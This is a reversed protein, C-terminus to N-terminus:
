EGGDKKHLVCQTEVVTIRTHHDAMEKKLDDRIQYMTGAMATLRTDLMATLGDLKTHVRSGIWGLVVVLLAFLGGIISLLYPEM